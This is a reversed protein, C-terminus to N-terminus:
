CIPLHFVPFSPVFFFLIFFVPTRIYFSSFIKGFKFSYCSQLIEVDIGEIHALITYTHKMKQRMEQSTFNNPHFYTSASTITGEYRQLINTNNPQYIRIYTHQHSTFFAATIIRPSFLIRMCARRHVYTRLFTAGKGGIGPFHHRGYKFPLYKNAPNSYINTM